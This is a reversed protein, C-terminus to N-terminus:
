LGKPQLKSYWNKQWEGLKKHQRYFLPEENREALEKQIYFAYVCALLQTHIGEPNESWYRLPEEEPNLSAIELYTANLKQSAVIRFLYKTQWSLPILGWIYNVAGPVSNVQIKNNEKDTSGISYLFSPIGRHTPFEPSMHALAQNKSQGVGYHLSGDTLTWRILWINRNALEFRKITEQPTNKLIHEM